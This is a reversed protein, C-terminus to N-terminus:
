VKFQQYDLLIQYEELFADQQTHQARRSFGDTTCSSLFKGAISLLSQLFVVFGEPYSTADGPNL